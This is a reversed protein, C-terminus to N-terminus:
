LDASDDDLLIQRELEKMQNYTEDREYALRRYHAFERDPMNETAGNFRTLLADIEEDLAEYKLVMQQYAQIRNLDDPNPQQNAAM